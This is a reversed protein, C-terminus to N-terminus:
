KRTTGKEDLFNRYKEIYQGVEWDLPPSQSNTLKMTCKMRCKNRIGMLPLLNLGIREAYPRLVLSPRTM